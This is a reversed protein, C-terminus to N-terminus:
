FDSRFEVTTFILASSILGWQITTPRCLGWEVSSCKKLILFADNTGDTVIILPNSFLKADTHLSLPIYARASLCLPLGTYLMRISQQHDKRWHSSQPSKHYKTTSQVGKHEHGKCYNATNQSGKLEKTYFIRASRYQDFCPQASIMDRTSTPQAIRM